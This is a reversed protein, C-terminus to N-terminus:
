EPQLALGRYKTILEVENRITGEMDLYTGYAGGVELNVAGDDPPPPAFSALQKKKGGISFGLFKEPLWQSWAERLNM